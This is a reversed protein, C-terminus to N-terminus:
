YANVCGNVATAGVRQSLAKCSLDRVEKNVIMETNESVGLISNTKLINAMYILAYQRSLWQSSM